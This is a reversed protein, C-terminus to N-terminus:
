LRTLSPSVSLYKALRHTRRNAPRPPRTLFLWFMGGCMAVWGALLLFATM